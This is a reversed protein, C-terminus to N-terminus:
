GPNRPRLGDEAAVIDDVPQDQKRLSPANNAIDVDERKRIAEETM